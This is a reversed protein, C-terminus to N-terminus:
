EQWVSVGGVPLKAVFTEVGRSRISEAILATKAAPPLVIFSGGGGGGTIKAGLAGAAYAWDVHIDMNRSSAGLWTLASHNLTLINGLTKLDGEKLSLAALEGLHSSANTLGSFLSPHSKKRSLVKEIMRATNRKRNTIGIVFSVPQKLNIQRPGRERHFLMIGGYVPVSVDVGSPNGHALKESVMALKVLDDKSIDHGLASSAARLVAVAVSGSSGLGSAIPLESNIVIKVKRNSGLFKQLSEVAKVLPVLPRPIKHGERARVGIDQAVIEARDSLEARAEAFREVAAALAYAGHVVFHEGTIIIKGPARAIHAM